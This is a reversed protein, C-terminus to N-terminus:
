PNASGGLDREFELKATKASFAVVAAVADVVAEVPTEPLVLLAEKEVPSAVAAVAAIRFAAEEVPGEGAAAVVTDLGLLDEEAAVAAAAALPQAIQMAVEGEAVVLSAVVAAVTGEWDLGVERDLCSEAVVPAVPISSAAAVLLREELRQVWDEAVAIAAAALAVQPGVAEGPLLVAMPNGDALGEPLAEAAAALVEEV